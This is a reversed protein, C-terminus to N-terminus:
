IDKLKEQLNKVRSTYVLALDDNPKIALIKNWITMAPKLQQNRYLKLAKQHMIETVPERASLFTELSSSYAADLQYSKLLNDYATDIQKKETLSLATQSFQQCQIKDTQSQLLSKNPASISPNKILGNILFLAESYDKAVVEQDVQLMSAQILKEQLEASTKLQPHTLAWDIAQNYQQKQILGDLENFNSKQKDSSTARTTTPRKLPQVNSVQKYSGAQPILILQGVTLPQRYDLSNFEALKQYLSSAGMTKYAITGLTDNRQVYYKKPEELKPKTIVPKSIIPSKADSADVIQVSDSSRDEVFSCATLNIIILFSLLNLKNTMVLLKLSKM